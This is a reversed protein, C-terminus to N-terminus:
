RAARGLNGRVRLLPVHQLRYPDTVLGQGVVRVKDPAREDLLDVLEGLLELPQLHQVQRRGREAAADGLDEVREHRQHAVDADLRLPLDDDPALLEEVRGLQHM